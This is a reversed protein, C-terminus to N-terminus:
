IVNLEKLFDDIEKIVEKWEEENEKKMQRNLYSLETDLESPNNSFEEKLLEVINKILEHKNIKDLMELVYIEGFTLNDIFEKYRSYDTTIYEIFSDLYSRYESFMGDWLKRAEDAGRGPGHSQRIISLFLEYLQNANMRDLLEKELNNFLLIAENVVNYDNDKILRILTDFFANDIHLINMVKVTEVWKKLEAVSSRDTSDSIVKRSKTIKETFIDLLVSKEDETLAEVTYLEHIIKVNKLNLDSSVLSKLHALFRQRDTPNLYNVLNPYFWCFILVSDFLQKNEVIRSLKDSISELQEENEIENLLGAFFLTANKWRTTGCLSENEIVNLLKKALPTITNKHLSNIEEQVVIKVNEKKYEPFLRENDLRDVIIRIYAPGLLSPKIIINDFFGSFVMRAEEATAVFENPHASRNRLNMYSKISELESPSLISQSAAQEVMYNEYNEENSIRREIEDDLDRVERISSSLDKIKERLDHMGAITSLIIAARYSGVNYCNLAETMFGKIHQKKISLVLEELDRLM